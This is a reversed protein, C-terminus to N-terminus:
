VADASAANEDRPRDALVFALGLAIGVLSLLWMPPLYGHKATMNLGRSIGMVLTHTFLVAMTALSLGWRVRRTWDTRTLLYIGGATLAGFLLIAEGSFSMRGSEKQFFDPFYSPELISLSMPVHMAVGFIGARFWARAPVAPTSGRAARRQALFAVSFCLAASMSVAKNVVFVPLNAANEPAFAVYRITSYVLSLIYLIAIPWM